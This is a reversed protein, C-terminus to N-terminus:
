SVCLPTGEPKACLYTPNRSLLTPYHIVSYNANYYVTLPTIIRCIMTCLCEAKTPAAKDYVTGAFTGEPNNMTYRDVVFTYLGTVEDQRLGYFFYKYGNYEVAVEEYAAHDLFDNVNGDKM